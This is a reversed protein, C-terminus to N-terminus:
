TRVKVSTAAYQFFPFLGSSWLALDRKLGESQASTITVLGLESSTGFKSRSRCPYAFLRGLGESSCWNTACPESVTFAAEFSDVQSPDRQVAHLISVDAM